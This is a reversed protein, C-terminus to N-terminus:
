VVLTRIIVSQLCMLIPHLFSVNLFIGGFQREDRTASPPYHLLRMPISPKITFGEFVNPACGWEKPLGRALIKLLVKVLEVMKARYEMIPIEFDEKPISKPWLNPGMSFSGADPDDKPIEAGIVFAKM